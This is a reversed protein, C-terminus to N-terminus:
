TPTVRVEILDVRRGPVLLAVTDGLEYEYYRDAGMAFPHIAARNPIEISGLVRLSDGPTTAVFWPQGFDLGAEVDRGFSTVYRQGVMRVQLGGAREWAVTSALESAIILQAPALPDTIWGASVLTNLRSRYDILEPDPNKHRERALELVHQASLTCPSALCLLSVLALVVRRDSRDFQVSHMRQGIM